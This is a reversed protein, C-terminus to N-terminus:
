YIHLSAYLISYADKLQIRDNVREPGASCAQSGLLICTLPSTFIMRRRDFGATISHLCKAGGQTVLYGQLNVKFWQRVTIGFAESIVPTNTRQVPHMPNLNDSFQHCKTNCHFLVLYTGM